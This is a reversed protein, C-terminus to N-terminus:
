VSCILLQHAMLASTLESRSEKFLGIAISGPAPLFLSHVVVAIRSGLRNPKNALAHGSPSDMLNGVNLNNKQNRFKM